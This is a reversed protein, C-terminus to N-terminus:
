RLIPDLSALDPLCRRVEAPAELEIVHPLDLDCAFSGVYNSGHAGVFRLKVRSLLKYGLGGVRDDDGCHDEVPDEFFDADLDDGIISTAM